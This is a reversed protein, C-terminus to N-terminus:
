LQSESDLLFQGSLVVTEGEKLGSKVETVHGDGSLGTVVQRPEYKGLEDRAV